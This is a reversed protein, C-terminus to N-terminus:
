WAAATASLPVWTNITETIDYETSQSLNNITHDTTELQSIVTICYYVNPLIIISNHLYWYLAYLYVIVCLVKNTSATQSEVDSQESSVSSTHVSGEDESFLYLLVETM